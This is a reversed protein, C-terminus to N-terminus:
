KQLLIHADEPNLVLEESSELDGAGGGIGIEALDSSTTVHAVIPTIFM